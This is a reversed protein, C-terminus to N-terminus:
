VHDMGRGRAPQNWTARPREPCHDGIQVNQPRGEQRRDLDRPVRVPASVQGAAAAAACGRRQGACFEREPVGSPSWCGSRLQRASRRSHARRRYRAGIVSLSCSSLGSRKMDGIAQFLSQADVVDNREAHRSTTSGNEPAVDKVHSAAVTREDSSKSTRPRRSSSPRPCTWSASNGSGSAVEGHSELSRHRIHIGVTKFLFEHNRSRM